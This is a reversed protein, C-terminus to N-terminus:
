CRRYPVPYLELYTRVDKMYMCVKATCNGTHIVTGVPPHGVPESDVTINEVFSEYDIGGLWTYRCTTENIRTNNLGLPHVSPHPLMLYISLGFLGFVALLYVKLLLDM